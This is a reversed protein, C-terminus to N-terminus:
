KFFLDITRKLIILQNRKIESLRKVTSGFLLFFLYLTSYLLFTYLKFQGLYISITNALIFFFTGLIAIFQGPKWQSFYRMLTWTIKFGDRFTNLKSSSGHTREFYNCDVEKIKANLLMSHINLTVELEFNSPNFVFSKVFSRSMVRLGSLSDYLDYGFFIRNIFTIIKNGFVHGVPYTRGTGKSLRKGVVMDFKQDIVLAIMKDLNEIGYTGDGDIVVFCDADFDAFGRRVAFGKGKQSEVVVLAGAQMAIKQTLDFSGNDVVVIELSYKSNKLSNITTAISNEENFCPIIVAIKM